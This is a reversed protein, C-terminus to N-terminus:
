KSKSFKTRILAIIRKEDGLSTKFGRNDTRRIEQKLDREYREMIEAIKEVETRKLEINM